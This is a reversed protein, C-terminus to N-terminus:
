SSSDHSMLTLVGRMVVRVYSTYLLILKVSGLLGQSVTGPSSRSSFIASLSETGAQKNERPTLESLIQQGM